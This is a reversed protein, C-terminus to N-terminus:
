VQVLALLDNYKVAQAAVRRTVVSRVLNINMTTFKPLDIGVVRGAENKRLCYDGNPIDKLAKSARELDIRGQAFQILPLTLKNIPTSDWAMDVAAYLHYNSLSYVIHEQLWGSLQAEFEKRRKIDVELAEMEEASMKAQREPSPLKATFVQRLRENTTGCDALIDFDIM